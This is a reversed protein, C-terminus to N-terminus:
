EGRLIRFLKKFLGEGVATELKDLVTRLANENRLTMEIRYNGGEMHPPPNLSVYSPLHMQGRIREIRERDEQYRPYCTRRNEALLCDPGDESIQTIKKWTTDEQIQDGLRLLLKVAERQQKRNLQTTALSEAARIVRPSPHASLQLLDGTSLNGRHLHELLNRNLKLLKWLSEVFGPSLSKGLANSPGELLDMWKDGIFLAFKRTIIIRELETPPTGTLIDELWLSAIERAPTHEADMMKVKSKGIGLSKIAALRRHGHVILPHGIGRYNHSAILPLHILGFQRISDVLKKDRPSQAKEGPLRWRFCLPAKTSLQLDSINIETLSIREALNVRQKEEEIVKSETVTDSM